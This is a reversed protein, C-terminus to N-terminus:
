WFWLSAFGVSYCLFLMLRPRITIIDLSLLMNFKENPNVTSDKDVSPLVDRVIRLLSISVNSTIDQSYCAIMIINVTLLRDIM